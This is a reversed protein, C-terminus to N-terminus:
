PGRSSARVPTDPTNVEADPAIRERALQAGSQSCEPRDGIAQALLRRTASLPGRDWQHDLLANVADLGESFSAEDRTALLRAVEGVSPAVAQEIDELATDNRVPRLADIVKDVAVLLPSNLSALTDTDFLHRRSLIDVVASRRQNTCEPQGAICNALVKKAKMVMDCAGRTGRGTAGGESLAHGPAALNAQVSIVGEAFSADDRAVLAKAIQEFQPRVAVLVEEQIDENTRGPDTISAQSIIQATLDKLTMHPARRTHAEMIPSFLLPPLCARPDIHRADGQGRRPM